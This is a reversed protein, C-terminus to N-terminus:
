GPVVVVKGRVKRGAIATLADATRELPYVEQVHPRIEGAAAWGLIREMEAAFVEPERTVHEGFFVGISAAGKLLLLNLPPKPIAGAAFGVVLHRGRWALARIAPESFRDGVLDYVVDVGRGDTLDKLRLKLDEAEYDIVADAGVEQCFALKEAGAACAIVRAGLRKAVEIGAQGAGGSAGLVAVTEGPRVGGRDALGHIATGYTITLTSAVVLDLGTPVPILAEAPVVLKERAGGWRVHVVVPTGVAPHGVGPGLSEVVGAIEGGPSFPPEPRFQYRGAVILTDFFNLACARVAVVVEGPGAVPEPLDVIGLDGIGGFERCVVAKM